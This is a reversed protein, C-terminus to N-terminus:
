IYFCVAAYGVVRSKDDSANVSTDYHILQSQWKNFKAMKMLILIGNAGCAANDKDQFYSINGALIAEITSHDNQNAQDLSLYHSLDSSIIFVSNAYNESFYKTAKQYDVTSGTLFGSFSFNDKLLYQLFPLQVELCHEPIFPQNQIYVYDTTNVPALHKVAGLPTQWFDYDCGVIGDLFYNHSPGILVFHPTININTLQKYGWAATQGSYVYGAHPVIMAMIKRDRMMNETKSLLGSIVGSLEQQNDPYFQGAFTPLKIKTNPSIGPEMFKEVAIKVNEV